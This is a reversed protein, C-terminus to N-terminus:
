VYILSKRISKAVSKVRIGKVGAPTLIDIKKKFLKELYDSTDMFNDFSPSKFDIVMDIDSRKGYGGHVVSGFLAIKKVGYNERLYPIERRLINVVKQRPSM